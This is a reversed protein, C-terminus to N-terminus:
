KLKFVDTHVSIANFPTREPVSKSSGFSIEGSSHAPLIKRLRIRFSSEDLHAPNELPLANFTGFESITESHARRFAGGTADVVYFKSLIITPEAEGGRSGFARKSM